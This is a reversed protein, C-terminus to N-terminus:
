RRQPMQQAAARQLDYIGKQAAYFDPKIKLAEQLNEAAKMMDGRGNYILANLYLFAANAPVEERVRAQLNELRVTKNAIDASKFAEAIMSDAMPANGRATEIFAIDWYYTYDQSRQYLETFIALSQTDKGEELHLKAKMDLLFANGPKKALAKDVWFMPTKTNRVMGPTVQYFYQYFALTDLAWDSGTDETAIQTLLSVATNYDEALRAQEFSKELSETPKSGSQCAAFALAGVGMLAILIRM